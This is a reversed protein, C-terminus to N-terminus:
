SKRRKDFHPQRRRYRPYKGGSAVIEESVRVARGSRVIVTLNRNPEIMWNLVDQNVTATTVLELSGIGSLDFPPPTMGFVEAQRLRVTTTASLTLTGMGTIAGQRSELDLISTGTLTINNNLTLTDTTITLNAAGTIVANGFMISGGTLTLAGGLTIEDSMSSLSLVRTGTLNIGGSLTLAGTTANITLRRDSRANGSLTITGGSLTKAARGNFNIGGTGSSSLTLNGTTSINALIRVIGCGTSTLTLNGNGLNRGGSGIAAEVTVRDSSTITLNRNPIIMWGRVDQESRTSLTIAATINADVLIFPLTGRGEFASTQELSISTVGAALAPRSTGAGGSSTITTSTIEGTMAHIALLAGSGTITNTRLDVAGATLAGGLTIATARLDVAATGFDLAAETTISGLVAGSGRLSFGKIIGAGNAVVRRMWEYIPQQAVATTTRLVLRNIQSANRGILGDAFAVSQRMLLFDALISALTGDDPSITTMISGNDARLEVRAGALSISTITIDGSANVVFQSINGFQTARSLSLGGAFLTFDRANITLGAANTLRVGLSAKLTLDGTGLNIATSNISIGVSTITLNRNTGAPPAMWGRYEQDAQTTITLTTIQSAGDFLRRTFVSDTGTLEFNVTAATLRPRPTNPALINGSATLNLDATGVNINRDITIDGGTSTLSLDRGSVIMWGRVTQAATAATQLTLSALAAGFTFPRGSFLSNQTITLATVTSDLAPRGTGAAGTATIDTATIGGATTTIAVLNAIDGTITNARLAVADATLNGGLTIATAQLDITSTFTHAASLTITGLPVYLSFETGGLSLMWPHITQDAAARLRLRVRGTVNHLINPSCIM